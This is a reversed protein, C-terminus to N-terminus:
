IETISGNPKSSDFFDEKFYLYGEDNNSYEEIYQEFYFRLAAEQTDLEVVKQVLGQAESYHSIVFRALFDENESRNSQQM